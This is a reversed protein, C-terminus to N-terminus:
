SPRLGAGPDKGGVLAYARAYAADLAAELQKRAAEMAADDADRNVHILDGVVIACRGFPLGICARDWNHFEIRRKAVVASPAIPRQSLRALMIIGVGAVRAVKPVDATMAVSAGGELMRLLGRLALAGGKNKTKDPRGGSGRVGTVGLRALVAANLGGDSHRSIMAAMREISRPWAFTAMLHQGHWAAMILPTQGAIHADVDGPERIFRSTRRVLALYGAFLVGVLAQIFAIQGLQRLM